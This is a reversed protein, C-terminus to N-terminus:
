AHVFIQTGYRVKHLVPEKEPNPVRKKFLRHNYSKEFDDIYEHSDFRYVIQKM